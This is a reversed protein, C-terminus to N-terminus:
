NFVPVCIQPPHELKPWSHHYFRKIAWKLVKRKVLRPNSRLRLPPNLRM